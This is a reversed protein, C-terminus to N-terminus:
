FWSKKCVRERDEPSLSSFYDLSNERAKKYLPSSRTRALNIEKYKSLKREFTEIRLAIEKKGLVDKCVDVSTDFDAVIDEATLDWVASAQASWLVLGLMVIMKSM